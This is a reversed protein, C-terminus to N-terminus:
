PAAQFVIVVSFDIGDVQVAYCGPARLRTFGNWSRWGPVAVSGGAEDAPLRLEAAPDAGWEFRVEDPGDLQRGRILVPGSYNPAAIWLTKIYYWGGDQETDGYRYAGDAQQADLVPYVPGDGVALGFAPTVQRAQSTPCPRGPALVPLQLPRRPADPTAALTPPSEPSPTPTVTAAAQTPPPSPTAADNTTPSAMPAPPEDTDQGAAGLGCAAFVVACIVGLALCVASRRAARERGALPRSCGVTRVEVERSLSAPEM